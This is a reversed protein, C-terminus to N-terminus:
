RDNGLGIVEAIAGDGALAPFIHREPWRSFKLELQRGNKEWAIDTLGSKKAHGAQLTWTLRNGIWLKQHALRYKQLFGDVRKGVEGGCLTPSLEIRSVVEGEPVGRKVPSVARIAMDSGGNEDFPFRGNLAPLEADGRVLFDGWFLGFGAEREMVRDFRIFGATWEPVAKLLLRTLAATLFGNGCDAWRRPICAVLRFARPPGAPESEVRPFPSIGASLCKDNCAFRQLEGSEPQRAASRGCGVRAVRFSVGAGASRKESGARSVGQQVRGTVESREEATKCAGCGLCEGSGYPLALCPENSSGGWLVRFNRFLFEKSVGAYVDDWPFITGNSDIEPAVPAVGGGKARRKALANGPPEGALGALGRESNLRPGFYREPGTAERSNQRLFDWLERKVEGRYRFGKNVSAEVLKPTARRDSYALWESVLADYPGASIRSEFGAKRVQGSILNMIRQLDAAVGRGGSFQLPTFPPRFLVALSFTLRAKGPQGDMLTKLKGLFVGFEEHDSDREFWTVILFIKMQRINRNFLEQFGTLLVDEQLNKQLLERIRDSIGEMACTYTRKGAALQRDILAPLRAIADFRQSKIAVRDFIRGLAGLLPFLGSFTNFNFTMLAIESLGLNAKLRMADNVVAEVARERYPKQEWSEKWFSCFYPCGGSVLVHASGATEDHYFIPGRVFGSRLGKMSTRHAIVPFPAGDAPVIRTLCGKEDYEQRYAGPDYFGPVEDRLRKLLESRPESRMGALLTLIQGFVEEGDGVLVGDVIGEQNGDPSVKGHLVSSVFSNSGGLLIFPFGGDVRAKRGLPIGSHALLAPLNVLEQVVSNSIAILDFSKPCRKSTTGVLLPIGARLMLEEDQAPPLFALDAYVGEVATAMQFLYSHTIGAAVESYESLRVILVRLRYGDFASPDQTNPEGGLLWLGRRSLSRRNGEFWAAIKRCDTEMNFNNQSRNKGIKLSTDNAKM